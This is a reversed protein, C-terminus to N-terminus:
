NAELNYFAKRGPYWASAGLEDNIVLLRNYKAVRESRAPAGTKIFGANVAVSLDAITTDETEGSRHSVITSWGARQAQEIVVRTETLTGIQNLKILISNSCKERLGRALREPNTVYLDDGVLQIKKGLKRTLLQWGTWDDEALGDEISVVPFDACLKEYYEVFQEITFSTKERPLHYKGDHYLESAACDLALACDRGAKYGAEEIAAVIVEVAERNSKLSPAFGGEDGVNTNLGMKKLHSKLAWYVESGMRMADPFSTAGVPLVMFEQFDTSNDAHKGGNLINMMPVPLTRAANGGLYRYLPIGLHTASALATALSVGLIANAGLGGKNATGDLEILRHDLGIQDFASRGTVGRAIVGNVNAVAKLVGQGRYRHGDKDRLELAEHKGTSAGSPVRSLGIAGSNLKVEVEVTPNGRSDLIERARVESITPNNM